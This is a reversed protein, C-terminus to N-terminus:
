NKRFIQSRKMFAFTNKAFKGETGESMVEGCESMFVFFLLIM